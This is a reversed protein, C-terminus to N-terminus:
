KTNKLTENIAKLRQMLSWIEKQKSTLLCSKSDDNIIFDIAHIQFHYQIDRKPKGKLTSCKFRIYDEWVASQFGMVM